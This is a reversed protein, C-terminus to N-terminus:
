SRSRIREVITKLETEMFQSVTNDRRQVSEIVRKAQELRNAALLHKVYNELVTVQLVGPKAKLIYDYHKAAEDIQGTEGLSRAYYYRVDLDELNRNLAAGFTESAEKFKARSIQFKGLRKLQTPDTRAIERYIREALDHKKLDLAIEAMREKSQISNNGMVDGIKLPIIEFAYNGWNAVQMFSLLIVTSVVFVAKLYSTEMASEVDAQRDTAVFGCSDCIVPFVRLREERIAMQCRPCNHRVM